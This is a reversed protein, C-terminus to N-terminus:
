GLFLRANQKHLVSDKRGNSSYFWNAPAMVGDGSGLPFESRARNAIARSRPQRLGYLVRQYRSDGMVRKPVGGLWAEIDAALELDQPKGSARLEQLYQDCDIGPTAAAEVIYGAAELPDMRRQPKQQDQCSARRRAAARVDRIPHQSRKVDDLFDSDAGYLVDAVAYRSAIGLGAYAGLAALYNEDGARTSAIATYTAVQELLPTPCEPPAWILDARSLQFQACLTALSLYWERARPDGANQSMAQEALMIVAFPDNITLTGGAMTFPTQM